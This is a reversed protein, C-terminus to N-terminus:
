TRPGGGRARRSVAAALVRRGETAANLAQRLGATGVGDALLNLIRIQRRLEGATLPDAPTAADIDDANDIIGTTGTAGTTIGTGYRRHLALSVASCEDAWTRLPGTAWEAPASELMARVADAGLGDAADAADTDGGTDREPPGKLSERAEALRASWHAPGNGLAAWLPRLAEPDAAADGLLPLCRELCAVGGAALAREDARAILERLERLDSLGDSTM